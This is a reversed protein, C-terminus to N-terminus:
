DGWVIRELIVVTDEPASAKQLDPSETGSGWVITDDKVVLGVVPSVHGNASKVRLTVPQGKSDRLSDGWVIYDM